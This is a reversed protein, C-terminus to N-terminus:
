LHFFPADSPATWFRAVDDDARCVSVSFGKTEQTTVYSGILPRLVQFGRADLHSLVARTAVLLEMLSTGGAGNVFVLLRCGREYGGDTLIGDMMREVIADVADASMRAFGPEGHVGMGLFVEGEPLTFMAQGSVPSTGGAAAVSLTRTGDRVREGLARAAALPWGEELAAGVVKYVFATGPAGRRDSERGKPASAVDDYMLLTEVRHGAYRALAAGMEGGIRDGEHHSILLLVGGGRDAAAIAEAILDPTPATFIPGIANADLLGAGVWGMAIPEHGSGNGIVLAAYGRPKPTARTVIRRGPIRAVRNPFAAVFGEIMEDVADAPDNLLKGTPARRPVRATVDPAPAATRSTGEAGNATLAAHGEALIIALSTAGPDAHGRGGGEIWAARGRSGRMGETADRGAAAAAAAASWVEALPAHREAAADAATAAPALADLLTKDGPACRGMRIILDRAAALGAAFARADLVGRERTAEALSLFVTATLPGSAGGAAGMVARGLGALRDAPTTAADVALARAAADFARAMTAGHDGDGVLADLRALHGEEAAFRAALRNAWADPFSATTM